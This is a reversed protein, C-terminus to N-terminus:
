QSLARTARSVIRRHEGPDRDVRSASTRRAAASLVRGDNAPPRQGPRRPAFRARSSAARPRVDLGGRRSLRPQPFVVPPNEGLAPLAGARLRAAPEPSTPM